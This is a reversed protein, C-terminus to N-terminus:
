GAGNVGNVGNIKLSLEGATDDDVRKTADTIIAVLVYAFMTFAVNSRLACARPNLPTGITKILM